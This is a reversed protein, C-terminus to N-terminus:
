VLYKLGAATNLPVLLAHFVLMLNTIALILDSICTNSVEVKQKFHSQYLIEACM